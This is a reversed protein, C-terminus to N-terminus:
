EGYRWKRYHKPCLEKFTKQIWSEHMRDNFVTYGANKITKRLSQLQLDASTEQDWDKEDFISAWGFISYTAEYNAYKFGKFTVLYCCVPRLLYEFSSHSFPKKNLIFLVAEEVLKQLEKQSYKKKHELEYDPAEEFSHYGIKYLYM